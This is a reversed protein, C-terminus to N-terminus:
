REEPDHTARPEQGTGQHLARRVRTYGRAIIAADLLALLALGAWVPTGLVVVILVVAVASLALGIIIAFGIRTAPDL